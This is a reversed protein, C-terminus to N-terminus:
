KDFPNWWRKPARALLTEPKTSIHANREYPYEGLKVKLVVHTLTIGTITGLLTNKHRLFYWRQGVKFESRRGDRIYAYGSTYVDSHEQM